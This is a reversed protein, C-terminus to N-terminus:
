FVHGLGLYIATSEEGFGIDAHGIFDDTFYSGFISIGYSIHNKGSFLRSSTDAIKGLDTFVGTGLKWPLNFINKKLWISRLGVRLSVSQNSAFRNQRLGRFTGASGLISKETLPASPTTATYKFQTALWLKRKPLLPRYFRFDTTWKSWEESNNLFDPSHTLISKVYLGETPIFESNREDRLVGISFLAGSFIDEGNGFDNAYLSSSFLPSSDSGAKSRLDLYSVGFLPEWHSELRKRFTQSVEIKDFEYFNFGADDLTENFLTQDGVGYYRQNKSTSYFIATESRLKWPTVDITQHEIAAFSTGESAYGVSVTSLSKFPKIGDKGYNFIRSLAGFRFGEDSTYKITPYAGFHTGVRERETTMESSPDALNLSEAMVNMSCFIGAIFLIKTM